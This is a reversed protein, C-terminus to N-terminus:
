WEWYKDNKFFVFEMKIFDFFSNWTSEKIFEAIPNL